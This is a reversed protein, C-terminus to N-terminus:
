RRHDPMNGTCSWTVQYRITASITFRGDHSTQGLDGQLHLRLDHTAAETMGQVWPKGPGYCTISPRDSTGSSDAVARGHRDRDDSRRQRVQHLTRWQGTPVWLWNEVGIYTAAPAAPATHIDAQALPMLGSHRPPSSSPRRRGRNRARRRGSSRSTAPPRPARLRAARASGCRDTPTGRGHRLERRPTTPRRTASPAPGGPATMPRAPCRPATPSTAVPRRGARRERSGGPRGPQRARRSRHRRRLHRGSGVSSPTPEQRASRTAEDAAARPAVVLLPLVLAAVLTGLARSLM